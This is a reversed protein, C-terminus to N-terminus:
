QPSHVHQRKHGSQTCSSGAHAKHVSNDERQEDQLDYYFGWTM